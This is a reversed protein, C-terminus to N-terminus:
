RAIVVSCPAHQVIKQSVSGLLLGQLRGLGRSGMVIMRANEAEAMDLIEGAFDGYVLQTRIGTAGRELARTAAQAVIAQGLTAIRDGQDAGDDGTGRQATPEALVRALAPVESGADEAAALRAFEAQPRGYMLVHVLSLDHGLGVSLEAALDVARGGDPSGDTAVLIRPKTMTIEQREDVSQVTGTDAVAGQM